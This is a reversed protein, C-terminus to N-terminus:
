AAPPNPTENAASRGESMRKSVGFYFLAGVGILALGIMSEKLRQGFLNGIVAAFAALTLAPTIPYGWAKYTRPLDPRSWRFKYVAAVAMAYFLSGGFIAIDTLNDFADRPNQVGNKVPANWFCYHILLLAWFTQVIIANVPTQFRLHVRDLG